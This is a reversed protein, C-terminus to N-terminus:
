LAFGANKQGGGAVSLGSLKGGERFRPRQLVAAIYELAQDLIHGARFFGAVDMVGGM